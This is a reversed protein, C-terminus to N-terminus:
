RAQRELVIIRERAHAIASALQGYAEGVARIRELELLHLFLQYRSLAEIPRLQRDLTTAIRYETLADAPRLISARDYRDLARDFDGRALYDDGERVLMDALAAARGDTTADAPSTVVRIGQAERYSYSAVRGGSLQVMVLQGIVDRPAAARTAPVMVTADGADRTYWADEATRTAALLQVATMGIAVEGRAIAACIAPACDALAAASIAGHRAAAERETRVADARAAAIAADPPGVRDGSGLIPREHVRAPACATMALVALILYRTHM